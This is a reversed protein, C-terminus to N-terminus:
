CSFSSVDTGVMVATLFIPNESPKINKGERYSFNLSDSHLIHYKEPFEVHPM